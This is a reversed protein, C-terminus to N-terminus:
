KEFIVKPAPTSPDDPKLSEFFRQDPVPGTTIRVPSPRGDLGRPRYRIERGRIHIEEVKGARVEAFFDSYAVPQTREAPTLVQWVGILVVMLAIAAIPIVVALIAFPKKPASSTV